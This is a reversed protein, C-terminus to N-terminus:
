KSKNANRERKEAARQKMCSAHWSEHLKFGYVSPVLQSLKAKPPLLDSFEMFFLHPFTKGFYCGDVAPYEPDKRFVLRCRCCYFKVTDVGPEDHLGIPLLEQNQCGVRPCTGWYTAKYMERMRDLGNITLIYRAHLLGYLRCAQHELMNTDQNGGNPEYDDLILTMVSKYFPVESQLGYHSFTDELFSRDIECFCRNNELFQEMWSSSMSDVDVDVDLEEDEECVLEKKKTWNLLFSM